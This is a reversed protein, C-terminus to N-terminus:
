TGGAGKNTWSAVAKGGFWNTVLVPIVVTAVTADKLIWALAFVGTMGYIIIWWSRSLFKSEGNM